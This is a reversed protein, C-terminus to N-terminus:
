SACIKKVHQLLDHSATHAVPRFAGGDAVVDSPAVTLRVEAIGAPRGTSVPGAPRATSVTSPGTGALSSPTTATCSASSDTRGPAWYAYSMGISRASMKSVSAAFSVAKRSAPPPVITSLVPINWPRSTGRYSVSERVVPTWMMAEVPIPGSSSSPPYKRVGCVFGGVGHGASLNASSNASSIM